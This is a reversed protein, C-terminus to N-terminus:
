GTAVNENLWHKLDLEIKAKAESTDYNSVKRKENRVNKFGQWLPDFEKLAKLRFNQKYFSFIEDIARQM